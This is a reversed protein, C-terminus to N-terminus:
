EGFQQRLMKQSIEILESQSKLYSNYKEIQSDSLMVRSSDVSNLFIMNTIRMRETLTEEDLDAPFEIQNRPGYSSESFVKEAENYMIEILEGEQDKTLKEDTNLSENFGSIMNRSITRDKYDEYKQYDASGLFAEVNSNNEEQLDEYRQQLSAKEETTSAIDIEPGLGIVAMQGDILLDKLKELKESSLNLEEFLASYQTELTSQISRKVAPDEIIRKQLEIQQKRLEAKKKMEDSLEAHVMDLEEEAADLQYALDNIDDELVGAMDVAAQEQSYAQQDAKDTTSLASGTPEGKGVIETDASQSLKRIQLHQYGTLGILVVILICILSCATKLLIKRTEM